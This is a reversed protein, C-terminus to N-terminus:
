SELMATMTCCWESKRLVACFNSPSSLSSSLSYLPPFFWSFAKASATTTTRLTLSLRTCQTRTVFFTSCVKSRTSKSGNTLERTPLYTLALTTLLPVWMTKIERSSMANTKRSRHQVHTPHRPLSKPCLTHGTKVTERMDPLSTCMRSHTHCTKRKTLPKHTSSPSGRRWLSLRVFPRSTGDTVTTSPTATCRASCLAPQM